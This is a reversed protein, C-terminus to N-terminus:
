LKMSCHRVRTIGNFKIIKLNSSYIRPSTFGLNLKSNENSHILVWSSSVGIESLYLNLFVTHYNKFNIYHLSYPSTPSETFKNLDVNIILNERIPYTENYIQRAAKIYQLHQQMHSALEPQRDINPDTMNWQGYAINGYLVPNNKDILINFNRNESLLNQISLIALIAGFLYVTAIYKSQDIKELLYNLLIAVYIYISYIIIFQRHNSQTSLVGDNLMSYGKFVGSFLAPLLSIIFIILVTLYPRRLGEEKKGLRLIAISFGGIFLPLVICTMIPYRYDFARYAAISSHYDNGWLLLSEILIKYNIKLTESLGLSIENYNKSLISIEASSPFLFLDPRLVLNINRYDLFLLAIQAILLYYLSNGLLYKSTLIGGRYSALILTNKISWLVFIFVACIKIVGYQYGLFLIALFYGCWPLVKYYSGELVQLKRIFFIFGLGSAMLVTMTHEQQHYMPNLMLLISAIFSAHKNFYYKCFKYFFLISIIGYFISPIRFTELKLTLPFILIINKVIETTFYGPDGINGRPSLLYELPASLSGFTHYFYLSEWLGLMKQGPILVGIFLALLALSILDISKIYKSYCSFLMAKNNRAFM